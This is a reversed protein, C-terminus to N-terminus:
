RITNVTLTLMPSLLLSSCLSYMPNSIVIALNPHPVWKLNLSLSTVIALAFAWQSYAWQLVSYGYYIAIAITWQSYAKFIYFVTFWKLPGKIFLGAWPKVSIGPGANTKWVCFFLPAEKHISSYSTKFAYTFYVRSAKTKEISQFHNLISFTTQM